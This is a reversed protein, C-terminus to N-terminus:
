LKVKKVKEYHSIRGDVTKIEIDAYEGKNILELLRSEVKVKKMSKIEMLFPEANGDFRVTISKLEHFNHRIAKLIEHEQKSIFNRVGNDFSSDGESLFKSMIKTLSINVHSRDDSDKSNESSNVRDFDEVINKNIFKVLEDGSKYFQIWTKQKHVLSNAMVSELCLIKGELKKSLEANNIISSFESNDFDQLNVKYLKMMVKSFMDMFMFKQFGKIQDYSFGFIRLEKVISVWVFDVYSLKKHGGKGVKHEINILGKREWNTFDSYVVDLQTKSFVRQRLLEISPFIKTLEVNFNNISLKNM